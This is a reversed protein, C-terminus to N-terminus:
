VDSSPGDVEQAVQRVGPASRIVRRPGIGALEAHEFALDQGGDRAQKDGDDRDDHDSYHGGSKIWRFGVPEAASMSSAAEPAHLRRRLKVATACAQQTAADVFATTGESTASATKVFSGAAPETSTDASPPPTPWRTTPATSVSDSWNSCGTPANPTATASHGRSWSSASRRWCRTSRAPRTTSRCAPGSRGVSYCPPVPM